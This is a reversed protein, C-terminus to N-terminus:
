GTSWRIQDFAITGDRDATPHACGGGVGPELVEPQGTALDLRCLSGGDLSTHYLIARGDPTPFAGRSWLGITDSGLLEWEGGGSPVRALRSERGRTAFFYVWEGGVGFVPRGSSVDTVLPEPPGGALPVTWITQHSGRKRERRLFVCRHGTPDVTPRTDSAGSETLRTAPADVDPSLWLQSWYPVTGFYLGMGPLRRVAERMSWPRSEVSGVFVIASSGPVHTPSSAVVGAPSRRRADATALEIDWIACPGEDGGHVVLRSGDAKLHPLAYYGARGALPDRVGDTSWLLVRSSEITRNSRRGFWWSTTNRVTTRFVGNM